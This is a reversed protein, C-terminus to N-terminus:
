RPRTVSPEEAPSSDWASRSCRWFASSCSAEQISREGISSTTSTHSRWGSNASWDSSSISSCRGPRSLKVAVLEGPQQAGGALADGLRDPM